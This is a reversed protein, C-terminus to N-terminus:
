TFFSLLPGHGEIDNLVIHSADIKIIIKTENLKLKEKVSGTISTLNVFNNLASFKTQKKTINIAM